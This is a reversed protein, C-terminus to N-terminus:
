GSLQGNMRNGTNVKAKNKSVIDAYDSGKQSVDRPVVGEVSNGTTIMADESATITGKYNSGEQVLRNCLPQTPDQTLKSQPTNADTSSPTVTETRSGDSLKQGSRGFPSSSM